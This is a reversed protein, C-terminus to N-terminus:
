GLRVELPNQRPVGLGQPSCSRAWSFSVQVSVSTKWGPLYVELLLCWLLPFKGRCARQNPLVTKSEGERCWWQALRGRLQLLFPLSALCLLALWLSLNDSWVKFLNAQQSSNLASPSTVSLPTRTPVLRQQWKDDQWVWKMLTDNDAIWWIPSREYM